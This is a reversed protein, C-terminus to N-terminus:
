LYDWAIEEHSVYFKWADAGAADRSEMEEKTLFLERDLLVYDAEEMAPHVDERDYLYKMLYEQDCDTVCLTEGSQLRMHAFADEIAAERGGYQARGSPSLLFVACGIGALAVFPYFLMTKGVCDSFRVLLWTILFAIPIGVFSFVRYYPLAAQIFLMLPTLLFTLLLYWELFDQEAKRNVIGTVQRFLIVVIGIGTLVLIFVSVGAYYNEFLAKLWVAFKGAYGAREVSQIYPTDLMYDIGTRMAKVPANLIISIHGQMYCGSDPTKSLLNSGIALWILAYLFVTCAASIVATIFLTIFDKRRKQLLLWTGGILCLPIVFYVSSPLTYLAWIFACGMIVYNRRRCDHEKVIRLLEYIVTLYLCSTLAYGRGQVALQNVIGMATFLFVPLLAFGKPFWKRSITFLLCLSTLSSLWSIGRLGIAPCGFLDLVASLVSFGVHNNPLPWHIAAYVPGRSIFYYYTYLEDYWPTLAFLRFGYYFAMGLLFFLFINREVDKKDWKNWLQKIM